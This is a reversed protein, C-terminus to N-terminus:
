NPDRAYGNAISQAEALHDPSVSVMDMTRWERRKYVHFTVIVRQQAEEMEQYNTEELLYPSDFLLDEEEQREIAERQAQELDPLNTPLGAPLETVPWIVHHGATGPTQLQALTDAREWAIQEEQLLEEVAEVTAKHQLVPYMATETATDQSAAAVLAGTSIRAPVDPEDALQLTEQEIHETIQKVLSKFTDQDLLQKLIAKIQLNYFGLKRALTAMAHIVSKNAKVQAKAWTPNAKQSGQVDKAM